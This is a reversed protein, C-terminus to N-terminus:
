WPYEDDYISQYDYDSYTENYDDYRKNGNLNRLNEMSDLPIYIRSGNLSFEIGYPGYGIAELKYHGKNIKTYNKVLDFEFMDGSKWAM